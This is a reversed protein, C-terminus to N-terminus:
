AGIPQLSRPPGLIERLVVADRLGQTTAIRSAVVNLSSAAEAPIKGRVIREDEPPRDGVDYVNFESTRSEAPKAPVAIERSTPPTTAVQAPATVIPLPTKGARPLPFPDIPLIKRRAQGQPTVTKRPEARRPVTASAPVGLAEFFKRVREEETEAPKMPVASAPADNRREVGANRRKEANQVIWRVLGVLAVLILFFIQEM